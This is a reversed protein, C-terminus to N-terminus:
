QKKIRGCIRSGPFLANELRIELRESIRSPRDFVHLSTNTWRHVLMLLYGDSLSIVPQSLVGHGWKQGSHEGFHPFRVLVQIRRLFPAPVAKPSFPLPVSVLWFPPSCSLSISVLRARAPRSEYGSGGPRFVAFGTGFPYMPSLLVSIVSFAEPVHVFWPQCFGM